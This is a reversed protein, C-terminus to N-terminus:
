NMNFNIQEQYLNLIKQYIGRKKQKAITIWQTVKISKIIRYMNEKVKENSLLIIKSYVKLFGYANIIVIAGDNNRYIIIEDNSSNYLFTCGFGDVISSIYKIITYINNQTNMIISIPLIDNEDYFYNENLICNCGITKMLKELSIQYSIQEFFKSNRYLVVISIPNCEGFYISNSNNGHIIKNLNEQMFDESYISCLTEITYKGNNLSIEELLKNKQNAIIWDIERKKCILPDNINNKIISDAQTKLQQFKEWEIQFEISNRNYDRCLTKMTSIIEQLKYYIGYPLLIPLSLFYGEAEFFQNVIKTYNHLEANQMLLSRQKKDQDILKKQKDYGKIKLFKGVCTSGVTLVIGNKINKIHFFYKNNKRYCFDCKANQSPDYGYGNAEWENVISEKLEKKKSILISIAKDSLGHIEEIPTSRKSEIKCLIDYLNSYKKTNKLEESCRFLILEDLTLITNDQEALSNPINIIM